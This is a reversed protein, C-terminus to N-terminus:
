LAVARERLRERMTKRHKRWRSKAVKRMIESGQSGTRMAGSAQGGAKAFDKLVLPKARKLLMKSITTGGPRFNPAFRSEWFEQMERAREVDITIEVKAALAWLMANFTLPGFKRVSSPGLLKDTQGETFNCLRDVASNSLQLHDKLTRLADVMGAYDNFSCVPPKPMTRITTM